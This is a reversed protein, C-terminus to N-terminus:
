SLVNERFNVYTYRETPNRIQPLTQLKQATVLTEVVNKQGGKTQFKMNGMLQIKLDDKQLGVYCIHTAKSHVNVQNKGSSIRKTWMVNTKTRYRTETNLFCYHYFLRVGETTQEMAATWQPKTSAAMRVLRIILVRVGETTQETAAIWPPKTSAAMRVLRLIILVLFLTIKYRTVRPQNEAKKRKQHKQFRMLFDLNQWSYKQSGVWGFNQLGDDISVDSTM